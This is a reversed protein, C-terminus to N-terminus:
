GGLTASLAAGAGAPDVFMLAIGHRGDAGPMVHVVSAKSARTKAMFRLEVTLKVITNQAVLFMLFGIFWPSLFLYAAIADQRQNGSLKPFIFRKVLDTM